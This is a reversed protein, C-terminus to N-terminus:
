SLKNLKSTNNIPSVLMNERLMKQREEASPKKFFSKAVM